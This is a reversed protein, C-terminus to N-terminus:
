PLYRCYLLHNSVYLVFNWFSNSDGIPKIYKFSLSNSILSSVLSYIFVVQSEKRQSSDIFIACTYDLLTSCLVIILFWPEWTVYFFYSSLLLLANKYKTNKLFYFLVLVIGLFGFFIPDNFNM